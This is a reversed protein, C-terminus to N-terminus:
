SRETVISAPWRWRAEWWCARLEGARALLPIAMLTAVVPQLYLIASVRSAPMRALVHYYLLYAIVSSFAAM